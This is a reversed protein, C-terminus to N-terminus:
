ETKELEEEQIKQELAIKLDADNIANVLAEAPLSRIVTRIQALGLKARETEKPTIPAGYELRAALQGILSIDIGAGHRRNIIDFVDLFGRIAPAVEYWENRFRDFVVVKGNITDVTGEVELGEILRELPQLIFNAKCLRHSLTWKSIPKPVYRKDRKKKPKGMIKEKKANGQRIYGTATGGIQTWAFLM